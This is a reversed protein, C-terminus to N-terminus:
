KGSRLREYILAVNRFAFADEFRRIDLGTARYLKELRYILTNRHIFMQKATDSINLGNEFFVRATKLLEDDIREPIEGDFIENLYELCTEKPLDFVLRRVGLCDYYYIHGSDSFALGTDLAKKAETYATCLETAKHPRSCSIKAELMLEMNLTDLLAEAMVPIDTSGNKEREETLCHLFLLISNGIDLFRDGSGQGFLEKLIEVTSVDVGSKERPLYILFVTYVGDIPLRLCQLDNMQEALSLPETLLKKLLEETNRKDDCASLLRELTKATGPVDATEPVDILLGTEEELKKRLIELKRRDPDNANQRSMM